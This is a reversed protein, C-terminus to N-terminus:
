LLYPTLFFTTVIFALYVGLLVLSDFKDLRQKRMALFLYFLVGVMAPLYVLKMVPEVALPAALAAGGLTLLTNYAYSGVIGGLTLESHGKVLPVLAMAIMEASTALSVLAVGVVTRNLNFAESIGVAGAVLLEGGLSLLVLGALLLGGQHFRELLPAKGPRTLTGKEGQLEAGPEGTEETDTFKERGTLEEREFVVVQKGQVKVSVDDELEWEIGEQGLVYWAYGIFTIVLFLGEWRTLLGDLMLTLPVTTFALTALTQRQSSRSVPVRTLLTGLGLALAVVTINTGVANGLAIEPAGQWSAVVSAVLEEPEAGVVLIGLLMPTVRWTRAAAVLRNTFWEAALWIFVGGAIFQLVTLM